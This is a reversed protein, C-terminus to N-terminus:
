ASTGLLMGGDKIQRNVVVTSAILLFLAVMFGCALLTPPLGLLLNQVTEEGYFMLSIVPLAVYSMGLAALNKVKVSLLMAISAIVMSPISWHLTLILWTEGAGALAFSFLLNSILSFLGLVLFRVNMYWVFRIRLSMMLELVGHDHMRMLGLIGALFPISSIVPLIFERPLPGDSLWRYGLLYFVLGCLMFGYDLHSLVVKCRYWASMPQITKRAIQVQQEPEEQQQWGLLVQEVFSEDPLASPMRGLKEVIATLEEDPVELEPELGELKSTGQELRM